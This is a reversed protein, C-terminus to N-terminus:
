PTETRCRPSVRRHVWRIRALDRLMRSSERALRMRSDPDHRWRVPVEKIRYGMRRALFLLEVDLAISDIVSRSFVDRCAARSFLKFGCQTDWIGPLAVLQILLNGGRGLWERFWPERVELRSDALGRSAIAVDYGGERASLLANVEEIPTALDADTFLVNEGAAALMGTRVAHGKGRNVGDSIVRVPKGRGFANALKVTADTSGDDSVIIEASYPQNTLFAWIAELSPPLRREENYAPIVVSLYPSM